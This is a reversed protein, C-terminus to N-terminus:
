APLISTWVSNVRVCGLSASFPSASPTLSRFPPAGPELAADIGISSRFASFSSYRPTETQFKLGKAHGRASGINRNHKACLPSNLFHCVLNETSIHTRYGLCALGRGGREFQDVSKLCLFFCFMFIMSRLPASSVIASRSFSESFSFIQGMGVPGLHSFRGASTIPLRAYTMAAMSAAPTSNMASFALPSIGYASSCIGILNCCLRCTQFLKRM